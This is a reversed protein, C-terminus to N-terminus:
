ALEGQKGGKGDALMREKAVRSLKKIAIERRLADEKTTFAEVYVKQVPLRGRTYKAGKGANHTAIRREVDTTYGTYLTNDRCRVVYVYFM